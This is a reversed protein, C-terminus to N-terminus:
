VSLLKELKDYTVEAYTLSHDYSKKPDKDLEYKIGLSIFLKEITWFPSLGRAVLATEKGVGSIRNQSMRLMYVVFRDGKVFGIVNGKSKLEMEEKIVTEKIWKKESARGVVLSAKSPVNGNFINVFLGYPDSKATPSTMFEMAGNTADTVDGSFTIPNNKDYVSYVGWGTRNGKEDVTSLDLDQAGGSNEWYIGSSITKGDIAIETGFPLNGVTQKRSIPLGYDVNKDLLIKKGKLGALDKELSYLVKKIVSEIQSGKFKPRNKEVHVKGNRIIFADMDNGLKKYELLNLYKMKDRISIKDLVSYDTIRGALAEAIFRKNIGEHLPHLPIHQTKSLRSIRNIATKSKKGKLAMILRKHRNFVSALIGEHKELFAVDVSNAYNAMAQIVDPSKILMSKGTAKYVLYRVADDGQTFQHKTVDFLEVRLENNAVKAFEYVIKFHDVIAKIISADKVPANAYLLKRVMASFELLTVGRVFTLSLVKGKTVELDFLGPTDLGYVEIYHLVQKEILDFIDGNKREEVSFLTTVKIPGFASDLVAKQTASPKFNTIYGRELGKNYAKVKTSEDVLMVKFLDLIEREFM